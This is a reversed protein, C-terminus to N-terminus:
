TSSICGSLDASRPNTSRSFVQPRTQWTEHVFPRMYGYGLVHRCGPPSIANVPFSLVPRHNRLVFSSDSMLTTRISGGSSALFTSTQACCNASRPLSRGTSRDSEQDSSSRRSAVSSDRSRNSFCSRSHCQLWTIDYDARKWACVHHLDSGGHHERGLKVMAMPRVYQDAQDCRLASPNPELPNRM